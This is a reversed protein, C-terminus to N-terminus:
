FFLLHDLRYLTVPVIEKGVPSSLTKKLIGFRKKYYATQRKPYKDVSQRAPKRMGIGRFVM